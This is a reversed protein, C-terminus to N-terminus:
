EERSLNLERCRRFPGSAQHTGTRLDRYLRTSSPRGRGQPFDSAQHPVGGSTMQPSNARTEVPPRQPATTGSASTTLQNQQQAFSHGADVKITTEQQYLVKAQSLAAALDADGQQSQSQSSCCDAWAPSMMALSLVAAATLTIRTRVLREKM